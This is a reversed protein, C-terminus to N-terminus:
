KKRIVCIIIILLLVGGGYIFYTYDINLSFKNDEKKQEEKDNIKIIIEGDKSYAYHERAYKAIYSLDQLKEIENSLIKEQRKLETLETKKNNLKINNNGINYLYLLLTFTFYGIIILSPIGFAILRKKSAKTIRSRAM